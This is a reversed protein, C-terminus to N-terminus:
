KEDVYVSLANAPHHLFRPLNNVLIFKAAPCGSTYVRRLRRVEFPRGVARIVLAHPIAHTCIVLGVQFM